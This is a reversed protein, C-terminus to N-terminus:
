LFVTNVNKPRSRLCNIKCFVSVLETLHHLLKFNRHRFCTHSDINFLRKLSGVSDSIRYHYTRGIYQASASHFNNVVILRQREVHLLRYAYSGVTRNQYVSEKMMCCLAFRIGDAISLVHKNRGNHLVDLKRANM